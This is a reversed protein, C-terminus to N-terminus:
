KGEPEAPPQAKTTPQPAPTPNVPPASSAAPSAPATASAAAGTASASAAGTPSLVKDIVHIVGNSASIDAQIIDANNVMLHEGGKLEVPPGAVTAATRTAGKFDASTVPANVLHYILLKQLQAKNEPLMLRELEGAPLAAFAADTPAFVTINKQTKLLNTLNTAEAAKLFTNFQGSAKATQIIDGHAVVKPAAEAAATEDTAAAPPAAPTSTAAPPSAPAKAAPEAAPAQQAFAPASIAAMAATAALLRKFTM